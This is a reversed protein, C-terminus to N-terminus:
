YMSEILKVHEALALTKTALRSLSPIGPTKRAPAVRDRFSESQGSPHSTFRDYAIGVLPVLSFAFSNKMIIVFLVVVFFLFINVKKLFRFVFEPLM